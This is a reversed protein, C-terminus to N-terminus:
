LVILRISRKLRHIKRRITKLQKSDHAKLAADREVKLQKIERKAKSKDIEVTKPTTKPEKHETIELAKCIAKLLDQKHMTTYGHLAEHETEKAIEKLQAVTKEKLEEFTHTM